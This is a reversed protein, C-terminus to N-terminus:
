ISSVFQDDNSIDCVWREQLQEFVDLLYMSGSNANILISGSNGYKYYFRKEDIEIFRDFEIKKLMDTSNVVFRGDFNNYTYTEKVLQQFTDETEQDTNWENKVPVHMKSSKFWKAGNLALYNTDGINDEMKLEVIPLQQGSLLCFFLRLGCSSCKLDKFGYGRYGCHYCGVMGDNSSVVKANILGGVFDLQPSVGSGLGQKQGNLYNYANYQRTGFAFDSCETIYRDFDFALKHNDVMDRLNLLLIMLNLKHQNLEDSDVVEEFKKILRHMVIFFIETNSITYFPNDLRNLEYTFKAALDFNQMNANLCIFKKLMTRCLDPKQIKIYCDLAKEYQNHQLLYAAYPIYLVEPGLVKKIAIADYLKHAEEFMELSIYLELLEEEKDLKILCEKAYTVQGKQKFYGFARNVAKKSTPSNDLGRVVNMLDQEKNQKILIKVIEDSERVSAYLDLALQFDGKSAAADAQLKILGNIDYPSGKLYMQNAPNKLIKVAWEYKGLTVLMEIAHPILKESVLLEVASNFKGEYALMEARIYAGTDIKETAVKSCFYKLQRDDIYKAVKLSVTSLDAISATALKHMDETYELGLALGLKLAEEYKKAKILSDILNSCVVPVSRTKNTVTNKVTVISKNFDVVTECSADFLHQLPPLSDKQHRISLVSDSSLTTYVHPHKSHFRACHVKGESTVEKLNLSEISYDYFVFNSNSDIILVKSKNSNLEFYTIPVRYDLLRVTFPNDISLKQLEGNSLSLLLCEKRKMGKYCRTYVINASFKWSKLTKLEFDTLLVFNPYVVLLNAQLAYVEIPQLDSNIKLIKSKKDQNLVNFNGIFDDDLTGNGFEYVGRIINKADILHIKSERRSQVLVSLYSENCFSVSKILGNVGIELGNAANLMGNNTQGAVQVELISLDRVKLWLNDQFFAVPQESLKSAMLEFPKPSVLLTNTDKDYAMKRILVAGEYKALQSVYYGKANLLIVEDSFGSAIYLDKNLQIIDLLEFPTKKEFTNLKLGEENIDYVAVTNNAYAIWVSGDEFYKMCNVAALKQTLNEREFKKTSMMSIFNHSDAILISNLPEIYCAGEIERDKVALRQIETEKGKENAKTKFVIIEINTIIYLTTENNNFGAYVIKTTKPSLSLKKHPELEAGDWLVVKLDGFITAFYNGYKSVVIKLVGKKCIMTLQNITKGTTTDIVELTDEFGLLTYKNTKTVELTYLRSNEATNTQRFDRHWTQTAQM